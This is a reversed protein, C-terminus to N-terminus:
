ALLTKSFPMFLLNNLWRISALKEGPKICASQDIPVLIVVTSAPVTHFRVAPTLLSEPPTLPVATCVWM